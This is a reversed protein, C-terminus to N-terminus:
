KEIELIMDNDSIIVIQNETLENMLNKKIKDNTNITTISNDFKRKLNEFSEMINKINANPKQVTVYNSRILLETKFNEDIIKTM